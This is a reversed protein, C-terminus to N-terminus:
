TKYFDIAFSYAEEEKSDKITGKIQQITQILIERIRASDKLSITVVSSYHLDDIDVSQLNQLVHLRWNAHHRSILPSDGSLYLRSKGTVLEVGVISLLGCELLFDCAQKIKVQPLNLRKAIAEITRYQVITVLVHIASYYWESYYTLQDTESLSEGTNVRNKLSLQRESAVKIQDSFFKKLSVKGARAHQILLLFYSKEENALSLLDAIGDAQELSFHQNENLVQTIYPNQCGAAKALQGRYARHKKEAEIHLLYEKYDVFEWIQRM